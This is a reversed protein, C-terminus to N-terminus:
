HDISLSPRSRLVAALEQTAVYLTDNLRLKRSPDDCERMLRLIRDISAGLAAVAQEKVAEAATTTSALARAPQASLAFQPKM